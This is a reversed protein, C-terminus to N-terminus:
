ETAYKKIDQVRLLFERTEETLPKKELLKDIDRARNNYSLLYTGERLYYCSSMMTLLTATFILKWINNRM